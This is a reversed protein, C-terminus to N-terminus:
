GHVNFVAFVVIAVDIDHLICRSLMYLGHNIQTGYITVRSKIAIFFLVSM